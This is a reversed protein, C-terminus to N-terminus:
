MNPDSIYQEYKKKGDTISSCYEKLSQLQNMLKEKKINKVNKCEEILEKKKNELSLVLKEFGENVDIRCKTASKTLLNFSDKLSVILKSSDEYREYLKSIADHEEPSVIVHTANKSSGVKGSMRNMSMTNMNM